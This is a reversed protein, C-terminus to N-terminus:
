SVVVAVMGTHVDIVVQEGEVENSLGRTGRELPEHLPWKLGETDLTVDDTLPLISVLARPSVALECRGSVVQLAGYEDALVVRARRHYRAALSVNGLTHDLRKGTAGLLVIETAGRELALLLAKEADTNEQEAHAGCDIVESDTLDAASDMDGIVVHPRCGRRRAWGTAGDTCVILDSDHRHHALVEDPPPEGNCLILAKM